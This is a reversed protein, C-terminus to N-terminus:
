APRDNTAGKALIRAYEEVAGPQKLDIGHASAGALAADFDGKHYTLVFDRATPEEQPPEQRGRPQRKAAVTAQRGDDDDDTVVGTIAGLLYRRMYTLSSGLEQPTSGNLPLSGEISEGSSHLLRGVLEYGREAAPRPCCSFSLGHKALLPTVAASVDALDAYTYSYSGGAKTPVSAKHNKTVTPMEAQFAALAAALNASM